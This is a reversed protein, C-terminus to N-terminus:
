QEQRDLADGAALWRDIMPDPWFRAPLVVVVRPARPSVVVPLLTGTLRGGPLQRRAFYVTSIACPMPGSLSAPVELGFVRVREDALYGAIKDLEPDDFESTKLAYLREAVAELRDADPEDDLNSCYVVEGPCDGRGPRYLGANAQIVHGWTVVGDRLVDQYYWFFNQLKDTGDLLISLPKAIRLSTWRDWLSFRRPAPGLSRRCQELLSTM